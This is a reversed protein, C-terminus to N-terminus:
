SIKKGEDFRDKLAQLLANASLQGLSWVEEQALVTIGAPATQLLADAIEAV